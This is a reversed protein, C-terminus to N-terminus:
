ARRGDYPRQAVLHYGRRHAAKGEDTWCHAARHGIDGADDYPWGHSATGGATLALSGSRGRRAAQFSMASM